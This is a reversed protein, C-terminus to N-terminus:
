QGAPVPLRAKKLLSIQKAPKTDGWHLVRSRKLLEYKTTRRQIVVLNEPRDHNPQGHTSMDMHMVIQGPKLDHGGNIVKNSLQATARARPIMGFDATKLYQTGDRRQIISGVPYSKIVESKKSEM